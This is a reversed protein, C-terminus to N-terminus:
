AQIPGVYLPSFRVRRRKEERDPSPSISPPRRRKGSSPLKVKIERQASRDEPGATQTQTKESDKAHIAHESDVERGQAPIQASTSTELNTVEGEVLETGSSHSAADRDPRDRKKVEDEKQKDKREKEKKEKERTEAAAQRTVPRTMCSLVGM